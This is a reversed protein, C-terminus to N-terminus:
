DVDLFMEIQLVIMAAPKISVSPAIVFQPDFAAPEVSAFLKFSLNACLEGDGAFRRVSETL